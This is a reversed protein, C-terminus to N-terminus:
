KGYEEVIQKAIKALANRQRQTLNAKQGKTFMTLLFVPFTENHFYYVVRAGGSKGKGKAKIRVKRIGGTGELLVGVKPDSAILSIVDTIEDESLRGSTAAEWSATEAVTMM